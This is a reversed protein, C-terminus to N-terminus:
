NAKYYQMLGWEFLRSPLIGKVVAAVRQSLAGTPYRVRPNRCDLIREILRAVIEPSSGNREDEAAVRIVRASREKYPSAEGDLAGVIRRNDTFGTCFDGPEILVVRIGFPKVEMRLAESMGELAFKTASYLGQFPLGIRGGLSSVNIITGAHRRRMAPLAARCVRLVGFLNTEFIEKAEDISTEEVPGGFGFGGNNIVADLRGDAQLIGEIGEAVSRDDALDMALLEVGAPHAREEPRRSTGYVRDGRRALREACAKGLGSSAGTILVVRRDQTM